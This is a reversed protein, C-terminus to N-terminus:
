RGEDGTSDDTSEDASDGEGMVKAVGGLISEGGRGEGTDDGGSGDEQGSDDHLSFDLRREIIEAAITAMSANDAYAHARLLAVADEPSVGLQAVVMGTAQDVQARASWPGAGLDDQLGGDRLLAAGVADALFQAVAPERELPRAPLQYLTLVGLVDMGPRIPLASIAAPGVVAQAAAAFTPWRRSEDKALEARVIRGTRYADPGPGEGLVDQLDELRASTEDTACVTLRAAETYSLTIAAGDAGLIAISAQCLRVPLPQDSGESAVVRALQALVAAKDTM